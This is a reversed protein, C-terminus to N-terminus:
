IYIQKKMWVVFFIGVVVLYMLNSLVYYSTPLPICGTSGFLMIIIHISLGSMLGYIMGKSITFVLLVMIIFILYIGMIGQANGTLQAGLDSILAYVGDCVGSGEVFSDIIAM